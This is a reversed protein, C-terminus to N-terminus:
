PTPYPTYPPLSPHPPLPTLPNLTPTHIPHIPTLPPSPNLPPPLLTHPPLPTLPYPPSPHHLPLPPPPPPSSPTLPTSPTNRPQWSPWAFVFFVVCVFRGLAGNLNNGWTYLEGEKTLAACHYAGCSVEKILLHYQLFYDVTEALPSVVRLGQALQGHFGSGWSMLWGGGTMPPYTVIAMSHWAGAAVSMVIKGKIRPVLCPDFRDSNDGLGLRGGSGNGWSWVGSQGIALSHDAGCAVQRITEITTIHSPLPFYFRETESAGLRESAGIGLRGNAAHGWTYVQGTKTLIVSHNSGASIGQVSPFSNNVAIIHHHSFDGLGLQGADGDGWVFCDGGKGVALCHSSGSVVAVCEEGALDQVITPELFNFPRADNAKSADRPNLGTRGVGNGGWVYVDYEETIAYCMDVGAAVHVVQVGRLQRIVTFHPRWELDGLGLQGKSNIGCVYVSGREELDAQIQFETDITETYALKHMQEDALSARLRDILEIRTGQTELDRAELHNRLERRSLNEIGIENIYDVNGWQVVKSAAAGSGAAGARRSAKIQRLVDLASM